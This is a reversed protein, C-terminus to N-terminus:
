EKEKAQRALLEDIAAKDRALTQREQKCYNLWQDAKACAACVVEGCSPDHLKLCKRAALDKEQEKNRAEVEGEIISKVVKILAAANARYVMVASQIQQDLSASM